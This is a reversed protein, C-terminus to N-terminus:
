QLVSDLFASAKSHDAGVEQVNTQYSVTVFRAAKSRPHHLGLKRVASAIRSAFERVGAEDASHSLVVLKDGQECNIRAAVDSAQMNCSHIFKAQM